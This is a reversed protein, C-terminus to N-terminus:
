KEKGRDLYAAWYKPWTIVLKRSVKTNYRKTPADLVGCPTEVVPLIDTHPGAITHCGTRPTVRGKVESLQSDSDSSPPISFADIAPFTALAEM